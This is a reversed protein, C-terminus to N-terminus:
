TKNLIGALISLNQNQSPCISFTCFGRALQNRICCSQRGSQLMAANGGRFRDAMKLKQQSQIGHSTGRAIDVHERAVDQGATGRSLPGSSFGEGPLRSVPSAVLGFDRTLGSWPEGHKM